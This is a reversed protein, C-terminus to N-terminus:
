TDGKEGTPGNLLEFHETHSGGANDEYLFDWEVGTETTQKNAVQCAAGKIAGMGETTDKTYKESIAIDIIDLAM